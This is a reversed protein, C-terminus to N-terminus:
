LGEKSAMSISARQGNLIKLIPVIKNSAALLRTAMFYLPSRQLLPKVFFSESNRKWDGAM